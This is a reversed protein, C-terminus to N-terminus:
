SLIFNLNLDQHPILPLDVGRVQTPLPQGLHGEPKAAMLGVEEGVDPVVRMRLQGPACHEQWVTPVRVTGTSSSRLQQRTPLHRIRGPAPPPTVCPPAERPPPVSVAACLLLARGQKM